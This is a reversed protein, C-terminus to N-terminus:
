TLELLAQNEPTRDTGDKSAQQVVLEGRILNDLAQKRQDDTLESAPRGAVRKVYYDFLDQSIPTGNVTAVAASGASSSGGSAASASSGGANPKCAALALVTTTLLLTRIYKM